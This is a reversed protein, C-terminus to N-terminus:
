SVPKPPAPPQPPPPVNHVEVDGNVTTIQLEFQGGNVQGSVRRSGPNSHISLPFSAEFDGNVQSLDCTFSASSPLLAQIRGNITKLRAGRFDRLFRAHVSGNVTHAEMENTGATEIDIPGNITTFEGAGDVGRSTIRGNIMKLDLAVTPPVRLAYDITVKSRIIFPFHVRVRDDKQGIHLTDGSLETEFYGQNEARRSPTRGVSRVHAVLLVEEPRGAEVSLNGNVGAVEITRLSSAPWRRQITAAHREGVVCGAALLVFGLLYVRRLRTNM